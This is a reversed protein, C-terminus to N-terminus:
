TLGLVNQGLYTIHSSFLRQMRNLYPFRGCFNWLHVRNGVLFVNALSDAQRLPVVNFLNDGTRTGASRQRTLSPPTSPVFTSPANAPCCELARLRALIRYHVDNTQCNSNRSVDSRKQDDCLILIRVHLESSVNKIREGADKNEWRMRLDTEDSRKERKM